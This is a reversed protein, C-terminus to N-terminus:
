HNNPNCNFRFRDVFRRGTGTSRGRVLASDLLQHEFSHPVLVLVPKGGNKNMHEVIGGVGLFKWQAGDTDRVLRNAGYFEANHSITHLNLIQASEFGRGDATAIMHKVSDTEAFRPLAFMLLCAVTALM